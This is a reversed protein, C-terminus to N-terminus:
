KRYVVFMKDCLFEEEGYSKRTFYKERNYDSFLKDLIDVTIFNYYIQISDDLPDSVVEETDGIHASVFLVGNKKLIRDIEKRLLSLGEQNFHNIVYALVIGDFFNEEFKTQLINQQEFILEPFMKRAVNLMSDSADVGIVDFKHKFLYSTNIGNGCGMDLIRNGSLSEIFKDLYKSDQEDNEAYADSYSGAIQDYASIVLNEIESVSLKGM